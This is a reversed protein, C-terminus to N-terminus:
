EAFSLQKQSVERTKRSNKIRDFSQGEQQTISNVNDLTEQNAPLPDLDVLNLLIAIKKENNETSLGTATM